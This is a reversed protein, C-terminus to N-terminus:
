DANAKGALEKWFQRAQTHTWLVERRQAADPLAKELQTLREDIWELFFRVSAKSIRRDQKGVEVYFPASSAFRFTAVDDAIARVLFWGSERVTLKATRSQSLRDECPIRQVVQGNQIVEIVKVRDNTILSLDLHLQLPKGAEAKFVHGPLYGDATGLLLPGNTVFSRGGKLGRWWKEYTFAGEVHVYVRNYGVPNPLVGSASGASPPLRFGCNLIHYYIEQTWQGNGLPPPLRREDRPRGWAETAYVTRRCMHNNALGISDMQGSALWVPVDWWFPKEIDIWVKRNRKTAEAVFTLPSPHERKAETIPLPEDLHFYLLAGGGREDEGAMLHAYRDGDFRRLLDRPRPQDKWRNTRNWWTIVPAVHLDEAKMLLEIDEVPRHVHLDGGYWGQRKLDAIRDLRVHLTHEQGAKLELQGAIRQHEPGREIEYRYRGPALRLRIRGVCCFHDKWFPQGPAAVAKGDPGTLHLRCPLPQGKSDDVNIHLRGPPDTAPAAALPICLLLSAVPCCPFLSNM